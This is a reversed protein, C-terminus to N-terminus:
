GTPGKEERWRLFSPQTYRTFVPCSQVGPVSEREPEATRAMARLLHAVAAAARHREPASWM